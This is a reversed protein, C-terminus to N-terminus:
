KTRIDEVAVTLESKEEDGTNVTGRKEIMMIQVQGGTTVPKHRVGRPVVYVDGPGLKVGEKGEFEITLSGEGGLVYFLEDADPHSHFIFSGEIKAIKIDYADDVSAVLKPNWPKSIQALVTPLSVLASAMNLDGYAKAGDFYQLHSRTYRPYTGDDLEYDLLCLEDRMPEGDSFLRQQWMPVEEVQAIIKKIELVTTFPDISITVDKGMPFRIQVNM